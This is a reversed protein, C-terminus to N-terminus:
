LKLQAITDAIPDLDAPAAVFTVVMVSMHQNGTPIFTIWTKSLWPARRVAVPPNFWSLNGHVTTTTGAYRLSDPVNPHNGVYVHFAEKQTKNNAATCSLFDIGPEGSISIGLEQPLTPCKPADSNPDFPKEWSTPNDAHCGILLLLLFAVIAQRM